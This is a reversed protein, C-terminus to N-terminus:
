KNHFLQILNVSFFQLNSNILETLNYHNNNNIKNIPEINIDNGFINEDQDILSKNLSNKNNNEKIKNKNNEFNSFDFKNLKIKKKKVELRKKM